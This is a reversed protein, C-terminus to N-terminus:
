LGNWLFLRRRLQQNGSSTWREFGQPTLEWVPTREVRGDWPPQDGPHWSQGFGATETYSALATRAPHRPNSSDRIWQWLSTRRLLEWLKACGQNFNMMGGYGFGGGVGYFGYGCGLYPWFMDNM